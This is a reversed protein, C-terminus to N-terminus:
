KGHLWETIHRAEEDNPQVRGAEIGSLRSVRCSFKIALERLSEGRREREKRFEKALACPEKWEIVPVEEVGGIIGLGHCEPCIQLGAFGGIEGSGDCRHCKRDIFAPSVDTM